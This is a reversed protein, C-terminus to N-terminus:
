SRRLREQELAGLEYERFQYNDPKLPTDLSRFTQYYRNGNAMMRSQPQSWIDGSYVPNQANTSYLPEAGVHETPFSYLPDTRYSYLPKPESLPPTQSVPGTGQVWGKLLSILQSFSPTSTGFYPSESEAADLLILSSDTGRSMVVPKQQTKQIFDHM